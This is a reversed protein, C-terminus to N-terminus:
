TNMKQSESEFKKQLKREEYFELKPYRKQVGIGLYRLLLCLEMKLSSLSEYLIFEFMYLFMKNCLFPPDFGQKANLIM